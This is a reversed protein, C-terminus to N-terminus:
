EVTRGFCVKENTDKNVYFDLTGSSYLFEYKDALEAPLVKLRKEAISGEYKWNTPFAIGLGSATDRYYITNDSPSRKPITRFICIPLKGKETGDVKIHLFQLWDCPTVIGDEQDVLAVSGPADTNALHLGHEKLRSIFLDADDPSLFGVRALEDDHCLTDNPVLEEFQKMGGELYRELADKRVVVSYAEALVAM